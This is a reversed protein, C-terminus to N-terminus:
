WPLFLVYLGVQGYLIANFIRWNQLYRLLYAMYTGGITMGVALSVNGVITRRAVETYELGMMFPTTYFTMFSTGQAFRVAFFGALGRCYPTIIGAIFLVLNALVTAAVRGHTDAIYGFAITGVLSGAFFLTQSLPGKWNEQCM